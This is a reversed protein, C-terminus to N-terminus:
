FLLFFYYYYASFLGEVWDVFTYVLFVTVDDFEVVVVDTDELDESFFPSAREVFDDKDDDGDFLFLLLM